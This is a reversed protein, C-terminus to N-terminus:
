SCKIEDVSNATQQIILKAEQAAVRAEKGDSLIFM